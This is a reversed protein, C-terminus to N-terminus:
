FLTHASTYEENPSYRVVKVKKKAYRLGQETVNPCGTVTLEMLQNNSLNDIFRRIGQDTVNQLSCLEMYALRKYSAIAIVSDESVDIAFIKLKTLQNGCKELFTKIGDSTVRRLKILKVIGLTRIEGLSALVDDSVLDSCDTMRLSKIKVFQGSKILDLYISRVNDDRTNLTLNQVSQAISAAADTIFVGARNDSVQLDQWLCPCGGIYERWLNSVVLCHIVTDWPLQSFIVDAIETPLKTFPDIRIQQMHMASAKTALILSRQEDSLEAVRLANDCTQIVDGHRCAMSLIIALQLYGAGDRPAIDIIKQSDACAADFRGQKVNARADIGLLNFTSTRSSHDIAIFLPHTIPCDAVPHIVTDQVEIYQLTPDTIISYMPSM